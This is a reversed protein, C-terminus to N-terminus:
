NRPLSNGGLMRWIAEFGTDGHVQAQDPERIVADM